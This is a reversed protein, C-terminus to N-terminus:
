TDSRCLGVLVTDDDAVLRGGVLQLNGGVLVELVDLLVVQQLVFHFSLPSLYSKNYFRLVRM